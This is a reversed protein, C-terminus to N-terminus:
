ETPAIDTNRNTRENAERLIRDMNEITTRNIFHEIKEAQELEDASHNLWRLFRQLVEHRWVLYAGELLGKETLHVDGYKAADLYGLACLRHIMKTASSPKVHLERAIDMIRVTGQEAHLRCIMELYDEGAATLTGEDHLAYGKLTYFEGM